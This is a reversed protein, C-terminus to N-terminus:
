YKEESHYRAFTNPQHANIIDILRPGMKVTFFDNLIIFHGIEM